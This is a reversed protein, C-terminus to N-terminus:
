RKFLNKHRKKLIQRLVLIIWYFIKRKRGLLEQKIKPLVAHLVYFMYNSQHMYYQLGIRKIM